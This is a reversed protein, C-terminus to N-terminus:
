RPSAEPSTPPGQKLPQNRQVQKLLSCMLLCLKPILCTPEVTPSTLSSIPQGRLESAVRQGEQPCVWGSARPSPFHRSGDPEVWGEKPVLPPLFRADSMEWAVAQSWGSSSIKLEGLPQFPLQARLAGEDSSRLGGDRWM